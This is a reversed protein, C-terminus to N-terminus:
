TLLKVGEHEGGHKQRVMPGFLVSSGGHDSIESAVILILRRNIKKRLFKTMAISLWCVFYSTM